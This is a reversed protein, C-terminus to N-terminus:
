YDQEIGSFYFGYTQKQRHTYIHAHICTWSSPAADPLELNM